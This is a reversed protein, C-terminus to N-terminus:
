AALEFCMSAVAFAEYGPLGSALSLTTSAQSRSTRQRRPLQPAQQQVKEDMGILSVRSGRKRAPVVQRFSSGITEHNGVSSRKRSAQSRIFYVLGQFLRLTVKSAMRIRTSISAAIALIFCRIRPRARRFM